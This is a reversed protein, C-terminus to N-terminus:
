PKASEIRLRRLGVDSSSRAGEAVQGAASQDPASPEAAVPSAGLDAVIMPVLGTLQRVSDRLVPLSDGFTAAESLAASTAALSLVSRAFSISQGDWSLGKRFRVRDYARLPLFPEPEHLNWIMSPEASSRAARLVGNVARRAAENAAEM